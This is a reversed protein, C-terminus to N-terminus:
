GFEDFFVGAVDLAFQLPEFLDAEEQALFLAVGFDVGRVLLEGDEFFEL